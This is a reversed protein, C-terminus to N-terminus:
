KVNGDARSAAPKLRAELEAIQTEAPLPDPNGVASAKFAALAGELDGREKRVIGLGYDYEPVDPHEAMARAFIAEAEDFRELRMRVFATRGTRDDMLTKMVKARARYKLAKENDGQRFYVSGLNFAARWYTPNRETVAVYVPMAEDLRGRNFLENAFNTLAIDNQPAIVVGRAFLQLDNTWYTNQMVTLAALVSVVVLTAAMQAGSLLGTK